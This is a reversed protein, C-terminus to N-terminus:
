RRIIGIERIELGQLQTRPALGLDISMPLPRDKTLPRMGQRLLSEKENRAQQAWPMKDEAGLGLSDSKGLLLLAAPPLLQWMSHTLTHLDGCIPVRLLGLQSSSLFYVAKRGVGLRHRM